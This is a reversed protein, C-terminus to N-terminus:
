RNTVSGVLQAGCERMSEAIQAIARIPTSDRRAVLVAAKARASIIQADAGRSWPPTDIIIVDTQHAATELLRNFAPRSLLEQPNPPLPGAPLVALKPLAAIPRAIEIGARDSLITSLGVANDIRFWEHQIPSRLDADILLTNEGLQAFLVALNAAIFSRGVGVEASVIALAKRDPLADLWRLLLESRLQRLAEVTIHGPRFAAIVDPAVSPDGVPLVAYEFQREMAYRIDDQSLIGLELAADGFRIGRERQFRLVREADDHSLRGADILLAGISRDRLPVIAATPHRPLQASM